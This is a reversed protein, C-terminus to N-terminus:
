HMRPEDIFRQLSIAGRIQELEYGTARDGPYLEKLVKKVDGHLKNVQGHCNLCLPQTPLAKMYRYQQQGKHTVLAAKELQALPEGAKARKDFESLVTSEWDDPVALPNRNRESVRRIQWGTKESAAKAMAPAKDRCVSIASAFGNNNIEETLVAMLKPPMDKAIQRAETLLAEQKSDSFVAQSVTGFLVVLVSLIKYKM